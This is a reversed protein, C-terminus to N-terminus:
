QNDTIPAMQQYIPYLVSTIKGIVTQFDLSDDLNNRSLFARWQRQRIGDMTFNSSFLVHDPSYGTNRNQFTERISEELL